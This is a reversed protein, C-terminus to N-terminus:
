HEGTAMRELAAAVRRKRTEAGKAETIWGIYRRQHSPAYANFIKAVKPRRNLARRLDAPVSIPRPRRDLNATFSVTDGAEAAIRKRLEGNVVLFHAGNGDPLANTVYPVGNIKGRVRVQARTGAARALDFPIRVLTWTGVGTSRTLVGKFTKAAAM